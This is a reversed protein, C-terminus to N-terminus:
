MTVKVVKEAATMESKSTEESPASARGRWIKAAAANPTIPLMKKECPSAVGLASM